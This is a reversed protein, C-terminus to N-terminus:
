NGFDQLLQKAVQYGSNGTATTVLYKENHLM